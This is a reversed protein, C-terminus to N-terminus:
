GPKAAARRCAHRRTIEATPLDPHYGDSARGQGGVGAAELCLQRFLVINIHQSIIQNNLINNIDSVREYHVILLKVFM